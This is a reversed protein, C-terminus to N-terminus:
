ALPGINYGKYIHVDGTAWWYANKLTKLQDYAFQARPDDKKDEEWAKRFAITYTKTVELLKDRDIAKYIGNYGNDKEIIFADLSM